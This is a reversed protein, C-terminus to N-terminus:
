LAGNQIQQGRLFTRHLYVKAAPIARALFLGVLAVFLPDVVYRLRNNEGCELLVNLVSSYVIAAIIFMLCAAEPSKLNGRQWARLLKMAAFIVATPLLVILVISPGGLRLVDSGALLSSLRREVDREGLLLSLMPRWPLLVPRAIAQYIRVWAAIRARSDHFVFYDGAPSFYMALSFLIGKVYAGPRHRIVWLEECLCVGYIEILALHNFNTSGDSKQIEDLVPIGSPPAAILSTELADADVCVPSIVGRAILTQREGPDLRTFTMTTLNMGMWSSSTFIGFVMLNKLYLAAVLMLLPTAVKALRVLEREPLTIGLAIALLFIWPLQFTSNILVPTIACVVFGIAFSLRNTRTYQLLCLAAVCLMVATPYTNYFWSEILMTGPSLEFLLTLCLALIPGVGLLMMLRFLAAVMLLGFMWYSFQFFGVYHYPFLRLGLALFLNFFPPQSHLYFLSRLLDSRLLAADVYQYMGLGLDFTNGAHLFLARSIVLAAMLFAYYGLQRPMRSASFRLKVM